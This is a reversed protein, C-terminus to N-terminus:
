KQTLRGQSTCILELSCRTSPEDLWERGLHQHAWLQLTQVCLYSWVEAGRGFCVELLTELPSHDLLSTITSAAFCGQHQLAVYHGIFPKSFPHNPSM